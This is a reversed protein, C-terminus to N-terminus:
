SLEYASFEQGDGVIRILRSEFEKAAEDFEDGSLLSLGKGDFKMIIATGILCKGTGFDLIKNGNCMILYPTDGMYEGHGVDSLKDLIRQAESADAIRKDGNTAIILAGEDKRRLIANIIEAGDNVPDLKITVNITDM